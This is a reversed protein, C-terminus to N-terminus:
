RDRMTQHFVVDVVPVEDGFVRDNKSVCPVYLGRDKRRVVVTSVSLQPAGPRDQVVVPQEWVRERELWLAEDPGVDVWADRGCDVIREAEAPAYAGAAPHGV